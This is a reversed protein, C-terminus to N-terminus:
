EMETRRELARLLDELSAFRSAPNVELCRAVCASWVPDMGVILTDLTPAAYKVRRMARTFRSDGEYPLRGTLLEFIVVGASFIDSPKGAPLGQIQEPSMYELTGVVIHSNSSLPKPDAILSSRALGFDTIVVRMSDSGEADVLMVNDSKFDRHIVGAAHAHALAALMQRVIDRAQELAFPGHRRVHERLTSGRVLEMTLFALQESGRQWFGLDFVRCVNEHTVQRALRVETKLRELAQQDHMIASNITKLAIVDDVWSDHVEYVEGMGGRAIRREVRYREAVLEGQSFVARRPRTSVSPQARLTGGNPRSSSRAERRTALEYLDRRADAEAKALELCAIRIEDRTKKNVAASRRLEYLYGLAAGALAFWLWEVPWRALKELGLGLGSAGAACVVPAVWSRVEYFRVEYTCCDDGRAVCATERVDARPLGWLRPVSRIQAQRSLCLLRHESRTSRYILRAHTRSVEQMRFTSIQSVLRVNAAGLRYAAMPSAAALILRLPGNEVDVKYACAEMFTEDDAMLARSRQLLAEFQALTVWGTCNIFDAVAVGAGDAVAELDRVSRHDALYRVLHRL